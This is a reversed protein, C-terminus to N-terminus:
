LNQSRKQSKRASCCEGGGDHKAVDRENEYSNAIVEHEASSEPIKENVLQNQRMDEARLVAFLSENATIRM